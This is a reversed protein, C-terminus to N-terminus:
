CADPKASHIKNEQRLSLNGTAAIPQLIGPLFFLSTLLLSKLGMDFNFASSLRLCTDQLFTANASVSVSGSFMFVLPKGLCHDVTYRYRCRTQIQVWMEIQIEIYRYNDIQRDIQRYIYTYIYINYIYLIIYMYIKLGGTWGDM